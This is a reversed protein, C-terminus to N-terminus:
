WYMFILVRVRRIFHRDIGRTMSQDNIFTDAVEAKISECVMIMIIM